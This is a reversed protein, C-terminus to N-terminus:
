RGGASGASGGEGAAGGEGACAAVARDLRMACAELALVVEPAYSGTDLAGRWEELQDCSRGRVSCDASEPFESVPQCFAVSRCDASAECGCGDCEPSCGEFISSHCGLEGVLTEPVCREDADCDDDGDCYPRLCGQVDFDSWPQGCGLAECTAELSCSSTPQGGDRKPAPPCHSLSDEVEDPRNCGAAGASAGLGGTGSAAGGKGSAAAVGGAGGAGTGSGGAAVPVGASAGATGASPHAAHDSESKGCSAAVAVALLIPSFHMRGLM